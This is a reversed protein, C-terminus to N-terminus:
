LPASYRDDLPVILRFFLGHEVYTDLTLLSPGHYVTPIISVVWSGPANLFTSTSKEPASILMWFCM